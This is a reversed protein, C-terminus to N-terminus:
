HARPERGTVVGILWVAITMAVLYGGVALVVAM